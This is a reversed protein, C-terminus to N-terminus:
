LLMAAQKEDLTVDDNLKIKDHLDNLQGWRHILTEFPTQFTWDAQRDFGQYGKFIRTLLGRM